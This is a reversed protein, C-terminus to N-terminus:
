DGCREGKVLTETGKDGPETTCGVDGGPPRVSAESKIRGFGQHNDGSRSRRSGTDGGSSTGANLSGQYFALWGALWCVVDDRERRGKGRM